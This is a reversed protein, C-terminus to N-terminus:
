TWMIKCLNDEAPNSPQDVNALFTIKFTVVYFHTVTSSSKKMVMELKASKLIRHTTCPSSVAEQLDRPKGLLLDIIAGLVRYGLKVSRMWFSVIKWFSSQEFKLSTQTHSPKM